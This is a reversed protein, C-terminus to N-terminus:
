IEDEEIEVELGLGVVAKLRQIETTLSDLLKATDKDQVQQVSKPVAVVDTLSATYAQM